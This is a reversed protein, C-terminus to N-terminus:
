LKLRKVVILIFMISLAWAIYIWPPVYPMPYKTNYKWLKYYVCINEVLGFLLTFIFVLQLNVNYFMAVIVFTTFLTATLM